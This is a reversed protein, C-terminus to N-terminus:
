QRHRPRPVRSAWRELWHGGTAADHAWYALPSSSEEVAGGFIAMTWSMHCIVVDFPKQSLLERLRKRAAWLTWLKRSRVEGLQHVTVGTEKLERSLRGEFSLAFEPQMDPCLHRFRALTVLATEVGGYLNGSSIHLVRM